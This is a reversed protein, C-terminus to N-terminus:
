QNYHNKSPKVPNEHKKVLRIALPSCVALWFTTATTPSWAASSSNATRANRCRCGSSDTPRLSSVRRKWSPLYFFIPFSNPFGCFPSFLFRLVSGRTEKLLFLFLFLFNFQRFVLELRINSAKVSNERNKKEYTRESPTSEKELFKKQWQSNGGATKGFSGGSFRNKM